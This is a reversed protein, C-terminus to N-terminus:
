RTAAVAPKFAGRTARPLVLAAAALALAIDVLWFATDSGTAHALLGGAWIGTFSGVQHVLMVVGFLVGLRHTGYGQAVLATTPPLTAMHSAGMLVAFLMLGALSPPAAVFAAIALARAAYIGALLRHVDFRKMVLGVAISGVINAAGAVAIWPGALSPPFGCREIAGPMHAGLFAIHLGCVGFSLAYRWFPADRLADGIPQAPQVGPSSRPTRLALALPVALLSTAAFLLTAAQWGRGDITWQLVPALVLQGASAGAGVIGVALGAHQASAARSV